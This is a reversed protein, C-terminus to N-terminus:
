SWTSATGVPRKTRIAWPRFVPLLLALYALVMAFGPKLSKSCNPGHDVIEACFEHGMVVDRKLDMAMPGGTERHRALLREAHKLMHLDSGCIGCSLTKVLVQGPAPEPDPITDVVIKQDRMVAARM